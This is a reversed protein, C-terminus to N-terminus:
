RKAPRSRPRMIPTGASSDSANEGDIVDNLPNSSDTLVHIEATRDFRTFRADKTVYTPM